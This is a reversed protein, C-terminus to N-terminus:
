VYRLMYFWLEVDGEGCYMTHMWLKLNDMPASVASFASGNLVAERVCKGEWSWRRSFSEFWGNSSIEM